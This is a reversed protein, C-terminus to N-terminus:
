SATSSTGSPRAHVQLFWTSTTSSLDFWIVIVSRAQLRPNFRLKKLIRHTSYQANSHRALRFRTTINPIRIRISFSWSSKHHFYQLDHGLYYWLRPHLPQHTSHAQLLSTNYKLKFRAGYPLLRSQYRCCFDTNFPLRCASYKARLWLYDVSM